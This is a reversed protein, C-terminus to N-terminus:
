FSFIHSTVYCEEEIIIEKINYLMYFKKDIKM